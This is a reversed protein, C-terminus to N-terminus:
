SFMKISKERIHNIVPNKGVIHFRNSALPPSSLLWPSMLPGPFGNPFTIIERATTDEHRLLGSSRYNRWGILAETQFAAKAKEAASEGRCVRSLNHKCGENFSDLHQAFVTMNPKDKLDRLECDRTCAPAHKGFSFSM